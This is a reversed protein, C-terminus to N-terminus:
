RTSRRIARRHAEELCALASPIDHENKLECLQWNEGKRQVGERLKYAIAQASELARKDPLMAFIVNRHYIARLGFMARTSVDPWNLLEQALLQSLRRTEESVAVLKPRKGSVSKLM